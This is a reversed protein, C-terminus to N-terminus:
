HSTHIPPPIYQLLVLRQARACCGGTPQIQGARSAQQAIKNNGLMRAVNVVGLDDRPSPLWSHIDGVRPIRYTGKAARM